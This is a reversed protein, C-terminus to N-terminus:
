LGWTATVPMAVPWDENEVAQEWTPTHETILLDAYYRESSANIEDIRHHRCVVSSEYWELVAGALVDATKDNIGDLSTDTCADLYSDLAEGFTTLHRDCVENLVNAYVLIQNLLM